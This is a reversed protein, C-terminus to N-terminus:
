IIVGKLESVVIGSWFCFVIGSFRVEIKVIKSSFLHWAEIAVPWGKILISSMKSGPAHEGTTTFCVSSSTIFISLGSVIRFGFRLDREMM